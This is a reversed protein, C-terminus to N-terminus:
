RVPNFDILLMDRYAPLRPDVRQLPTVGHWVERDNVVITDFEHHLVDTHLPAGNADCITSEAGCVNERSVLVQAVVQHGDQHMGEPTPQGVADGDGLIRIQHVYLLWDHIQPYMRGCQQVHFRILRRLVPNARTQPALPEFLRHVGGHLPNYDLSQYFPAHELDVLLDAMRAYLYRGFRRLRYTEGGSMYRDVALGDWSQKLSQWDADEPAVVHAGVYDARDFILYNRAEPQATAAQAAEHATHVASDALQQM